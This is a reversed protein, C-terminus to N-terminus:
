ERDRNALCIALPSACPSRAGRIKSTYTAGERISNATKVHPRGSTASVRLSRGEQLDFPKDHEKAFHDLAERVYIQYSAIDLRLGAEQKKTSVKNSLARILSYTADYQQKIISHSSVFDSPICVVRISSYYRCLLKSPTSVRIGRQLWKERLEEFKAFTGQNQTEANVEEDLL